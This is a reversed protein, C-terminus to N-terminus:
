ITRALGDCLRGAGYGLIPKTAFPQAIIKSRQWSKGATASQQFHIEAANSMTHHEWVCYVNPGSCALAKEFSFDFTKRRSFTIGGDSSTRVCHEKPLISWFVSVNEGSCKLIPYASRHERPPASDLCTDNPQWNLGGDASSNFYIDHVSNDDRQGTWAVYYFCDSSNVVFAGGCNTKNIKQPSSWTLGHDTSRCSYIYGRNTGFYM